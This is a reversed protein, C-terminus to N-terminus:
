VGQVLVLSENKPMDIDGNLGLDGFQQSVLSYNYDHVLPLSIISVPSFYRSDDAPDTSNLTGKVHKTTLQLFM